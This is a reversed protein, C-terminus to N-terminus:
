YCVTYNYIGSVGEQTVSQITDSTKTNVWQLDLGEEDKKVFTGKKSLQPGKSLVTGVEGECRQNMSSFRQKKRRWISLLSKRVSTM